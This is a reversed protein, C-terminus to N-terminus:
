SRRPPHACVTTKSSRAPASTSHDLGENFARRPAQDTANWDGHYGLMTLSFGNLADGTSYKLVGNYKGYDDPNRWPGDNHEYEFAYLLHGAGLKPSDAIMERVYGLSGITPSAIGNPLTDFYRIDFAGASAFDGTDAYYVGKRWQM